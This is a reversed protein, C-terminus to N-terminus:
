ITGLVNACVQSERRGSFQPLGNKEMQCVLQDYEDFAESCPKSTAASLLFLTTRLHLELDSPLLTMGCDNVLVLYASRCDSVLM